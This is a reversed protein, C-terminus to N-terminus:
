AASDSAPFRTRQKAAKAKEMAFRLEECMKIVSEGSRLVKIGEAYDYMSHPDPLRTVQEPHEELARGLSALHQGILGLKLRYARVDEEATYAAYLADRTIQERQDGTM